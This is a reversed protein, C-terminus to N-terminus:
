SDQKSPLFYIQVGNSVETTAFEERRGNVTIEFVGATLEKGYTPDKVEARGTEIWEATFINIGEFYRALMRDNAYIWM